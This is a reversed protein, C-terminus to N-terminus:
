AFEWVIFAGATGNNGAAATATTGNARGPGGAGFGSPALAALQTTSTWKTPGGFGLPNSGGGGAVCPTTAAAPRQSDNGGQGAISFDANTAGTATVGGAVSGVAAAGAQFAGGPGGPLTLTVANHTFTSAGGANGNAGSVGTGAAGIAFTSSAAAATYTKRGYTGSSGGGGISGATASLGGSAGGGGVGEVLILRTGTPHSISTGSTLIQPARLLRPTASFGLDGSGVRQLCTDAAATANVINAAARLLVSQAAFTQDAENAAGATANGKLSNAAMQAQSAATITNATLNGDVLLGFGLDGSGARRLVQNAAAAAWFVSGAARILATQVASAIGQLNGSTQGFVSEAGCAVDTPAAVGATANAKITNAAMTAMGANTLRQFTPPTGAGNHCLPFGASGGTPTTWEGTADASWRVNGGTVLSVGTSGSVIAAGATSQIEAIGGAGSAQVVSLGGAAVNSLAATSGEAIIFMNGSGRARFTADGSRIQPSNTTPGVLGFQMFQGVDVIPNNAGSSAGNSLVYAWTFFGVGVPRTFQWVTDGDTIGFEYLGPQDLTYSTGDPNVATCASKVKQLLVSITGFEGANPSPLTIVQGASVGAIVQGERAQTDGQLAVVNRRSGLAVLEKYVGQLAAQLARALEGLSSTPLVTPAQWGLRDQAYGPLDPDAM